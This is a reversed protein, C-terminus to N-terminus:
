SVFTYIVDQRTLLDEASSSLDDELPKVIEMFHLDSELM